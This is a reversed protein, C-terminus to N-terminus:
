ASWALWCLFGAYSVLLLLGEVRAVTRGFTRSIVILSVALGAMYLLPVTLTGDITPTSLLGVLGLIAGSNFLCSGLANGLALDTQAARVALVGTTLEPLTTGIAVITVGVVAAPIGIAIALGSAGDTAFSGGITLLVLGGAMAAFIWWWGMPPPMEGTADVLTPDPGLDHAPQQVATETAPTMPQRAEVAAAWITLVSYIGFVTLLIAAIWTTLGFALMGAALLVQLAANLWVEIRILREQVVLPKLLACAGLVLAVNCINAGVVNGAALEGRSSLAAILNLALEPASTGWAVLTLGVILSPVNLRRATDVAGAVLLRGGTLLLALGIAFLLVFFWM